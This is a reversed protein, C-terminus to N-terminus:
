FWLRLSWYRSNSAQESVLPTVGIDPTQRRSLVLPTEYPNLGAIKGDAYERKISDPNFLSGDQTIIFSDMFSDM